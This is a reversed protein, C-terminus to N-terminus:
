VSEMQETFYKKSPLTIMLGLGSSIISQTFYSQENEKLLFFVSLGFFFVHYIIMLWFAWIKLRLFGYTILMLFIVTAIRISIDSVTPIQTVHIGFREILKPFLSVIYLFVTLFNLDCIFTILLPRKRIM